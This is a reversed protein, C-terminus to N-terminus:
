SLYSVMDSNIKNKNLVLFVTGVVTIAFIIALTLLIVGKYKIIGKGIKELM